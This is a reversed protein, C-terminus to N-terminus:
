AAKKGAFREKLRESEEVRKKALEVRVLRKAEWVTELAAEIAELQPLNGSKLGKRRDSWLHHGARILLRESPSIDRRDNRCTIFV